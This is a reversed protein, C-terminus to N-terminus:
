RGEARNVSRPVDSSKLQSSRGRPSGVATAARRWKASTRGCAYTALANLMLVAGCWRDLRARVDGMGLPLPADLPTALAIATVAAYLTAVAACVLMAVWVTSWDPAFVMWVVYVAQLAAVLIALRAWPPATALNAHGLAPLAGFTAVLGLFAALWRVTQVHGRDARYVVDERRPTM